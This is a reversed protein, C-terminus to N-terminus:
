KGLQYNIATFIIFGSFGISLCFMVLALLCGLPIKSKPDPQHSMLYDERESQWGEGKPQWHDKLYDELEPKEKKLM